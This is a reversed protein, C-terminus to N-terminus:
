ITPFFAKGDPRRFYLVGPGNGEDDRSPFIVFSDLELLMPPDDNEWGQNRMEDQTMARIRRIQQGALAAGLAPEPVVHFQRTSLPLDKGTEGFLSGGSNGEPDTGPFIITGDDLILMPVHRFWGVEALLASTMWSISFIKRGVPSFPPKGRKM